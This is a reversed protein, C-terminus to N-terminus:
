VPVLGHQLPVYVFRSRATWWFSAQSSVLRSTFGAHVLTRTFDNYPASVATPNSQDTPVETIHKWELTTGPGSVQLFQLNDVLSDRSVKDHNVIIEASLTFASDLISQLQDNSHATYLEILHAQLWATLSMTSSM